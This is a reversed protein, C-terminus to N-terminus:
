EIVEDARALLISPITLGLDKAVKLNIVLEVKSAQIVPMEAPNAGLLIQSIYVGAQRYAEGLDGGYALLGGALVFDRQPYLVPLRYHSALSVIQTRKTTFFPDADLLLAAFGEKAVRSFVHDIETATSAQLLVLRRKLQRAADQVDINPAATTKNSPNVLFGIVADPPTMESLFQLRKPGLPGFLVSIGTLNGGPRALSPVLGLAVPDDGVVFVIPTLTTADKAARASPTNGVAAIATVKRAVLDAALSPLRDYAGDAWRFEISPFHDDKLGTLGRQFAAVLHASEAASRSSLFGVTPPLNARKQAAVARPWISTVAALAQICTRRDIM